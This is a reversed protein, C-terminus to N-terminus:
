TCTVWVCVCPGVSRAPLVGVLHDFAQFKSWSTGGNKTALLLAGTEGSAAAVCNDASGCSIDGIEYPLAVDQHLLKM